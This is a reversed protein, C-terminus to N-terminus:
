TAVEMTVMVVPERPGTCAMCERAWPADLVSGAGTPDMTPLCDLCLFRVRKPTGLSELGLELGIAVSFVSMQRLSKM